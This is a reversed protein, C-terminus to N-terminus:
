DAPMVAARRSGVRRLGMALAALGLPLVVLVTGIAAIVPEVYMVVSNWIEIPLTKTSPGSLFLAILLNDFSTLFAFVAAAMVAPGVVPLTIGRFARIPTAGLGIAAQELREDFGQLTATVMIVVLPLSVVSQGLSIALAQDTMRLDSFLFFMSLATVIEPVILPSLILAYVATKFRYRGRVMSVAATVGVLLSIAASMLAIYVSHWISSLWRPEAVVEHYWRTSWGPPPFALFESSSLSVPIIIILPLFLLFGILLAFAYTVRRV